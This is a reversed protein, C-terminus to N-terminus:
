PGPEESRGSVTSSQGDALRRAVRQAEELWRLKEAIPLRALRLLQQREHGDWGPEWTDSHSPDSM